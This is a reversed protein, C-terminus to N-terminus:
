PRSPGFALIRRWGLALLILLMGGGIMGLGTTAMSGVLQFYALLIRAAMLGIAATFLGRLGQRNAGHAIWGLGALTVLIGAIQAAISGGDHPVLAPLLGAIAPAAVLAVPWGNRAGSQWPGALLLGLALLPVPLRRLAAVVDAGTWTLSWLMQAVAAGLGLALLGALSMTRGVAPHPGAGPLDAALLLLLPTALALSQGALSALPATGTGLHDPLFSIAAFLLLLSLSLGSLWTRGFLFLAPGALFLAGVLLQWAPGTRQYVQAHLALGGIVLVTLSLLAAEAPWPSARRWLAPLAAAVALLLLLHGGLRVAAPIRDRNAAVLLLLGLGVSFLGLAVLAVRLAPARRAGEHARIAEATATDILGAGTWRALMTELSM